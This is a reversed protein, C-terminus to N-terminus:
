RYDLVVGPERVGIFVKQGVAFNQLYETHALYMRDKCRIRYTLDHGRFEKSIVIGEQDQPSTSVQSLVLHEPRLSLLVEGEQPPTIAIPGLDTDATEGYAIGRLMNSRGLFQATFPTQPLHYVEEPTGIQEVRGKNMVALRDCFSLAEEQDHTVLIANINAKKLITRIERRTTDRLSADLNSFPEDMLLLAPKAALARAIAVRQQQGGSLEHPFRRYLGTLELLEMLEKTNSGRKAPPLAKLAFEINKEVTLHPFLAYDQFIFGTGRKEPVWYTIEEEKLFVRGGDPKEFGAIMRLTTTKGCGSPGLLGFIEGPEVRFSVGDVAPHDTGPFWKTLDIVELLEM